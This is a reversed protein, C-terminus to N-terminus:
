LLDQKIKESVSFNKIGYKFIVEELYKIGNGQDKIRNRSYKKKIRLIRRVYRQVRM